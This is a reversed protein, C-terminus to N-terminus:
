RAFKLLFIGCSSMDMQKPIEPYMSVNKTLSEWSQGTLNEFHPQLYESELKELRQKHELKISRISKSQPVYPDLIYINKDKFELVGLFWHSLEFLPFLVIRENFINSSKNWQNVEGYSKRLTFLYQSFLTSFIYCNNSERMLLDCYSDIVTGNLWNTGDLLSLRSNISNNRNLSEDTIDEDNDEVAIVNKM